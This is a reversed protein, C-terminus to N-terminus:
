AYADFNKGLGMSQSLMDLLVDQTESTAKLVELNAQYAASQIKLNTLSEASPDVVAAEIAANLGDM